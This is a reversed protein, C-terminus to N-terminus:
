EEAPPLFSMTLSHHNENKKKKQHYQPEFEAKHKCPLCEVVETM